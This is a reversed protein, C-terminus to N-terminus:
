GLYRRVKKLRISTLWRRNFRERKRSITNTNWLLHDKWPRKPSKEKLFFGTIKSEKWNEDQISSLLHFQSLSLSLELFHSLFPLFYNRKQTSVKMSGRRRGGWGGSFPFLCFSLFSPPDPHYLKMNTRLLCTLKRYMIMFPIRQLFGGKKRATSVLLTAFLVPSDLM